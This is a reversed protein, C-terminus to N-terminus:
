ATRTAPLCATLVAVLESETFPKGVFHDMGAQLCQQRDDDATNATLAVIPVRRLGQAMELVRIRRTAELGDMVPMQSDMLIVDPRVSEAMGQRVADAGHAVRVVVCGHRALMAQIVLANVDNDEALLVRAQSLARQPEEMADILVGTGRPAPQSPLPLRLLFDTGRGRESAVEIDGGMARGIERAINLGLGAGSGRKAQVEPAQWFAEFLHPLDEKAIGPGSDRVRFEMPGDTHRSAQLEIRGRTTFKIANGLLNHLVQRVRTVDGLVWCPSPLDIRSAFELGKEDCRVLYLDCLEDLEAALDFPAEELEVRGAEIRSVDLLDNILRLLHEGSHEILGLRHQLAPDPHEARALRTLGLIGHLPTRFEHSMTALFQSKVASQRHALALAQAREAAIRDTLFRLRFVEALRRESRRASSLLMGLIMLLGMGAFLGFDDARALLALAAPAIMPVVYAATAALRVQLGFTAVSAVCSLSAAVVPVLETHGGMVRVGGLGWCAGDVALLAVTWRHWVAQSPRGSVRYLHALLTRPLVVAVKLVVWLLVEHQPVLGSVHSALFLAFVTAVVTGVTSHAFIMRLQEGAVQGALEPDSADGPPPDQGTAPTSSAPQTM